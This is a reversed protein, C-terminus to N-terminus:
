LGPRRRLVVAMVGDGGRVRAADEEWLLRTGGDGDAVVVGCPEYADRLFAAMEDLVRADSDDRRLWSTPVRISVVYAPRAEAVERMMEEQMSRADPQPELLPYMYVHGTAGRRGALFPIQPESGFVAIRDGPDTREALWAAIEPSEPFLDDGYLARSVQAPAMRFYIERQSALSQAGVALATAAVVALATRASTRRRLFDDAASLAAGVFMAVAPVALLFYHQRFTLGPATGLASFAAFALLRGRHPVVGRPAAALLGGVAALAWLVPAERVIRGLGLRLWVLGEGLPLPKAYGAGYRFLWGAYHAFDGRAAAWGLVLATPLAATALLLAADRWAGAGRRRVSSLARAVAFLLFVVGPQKMLIALGLLLGAAITWDRAAPEGSRLAREQALLGALAPLVVFHTAHGFPGLMATQVSLFAFASAAGMAGVWGLWARGLLFVLVTSALNVAVLLLRASAPQPGLLAFALAYAAHTGPLKMGYVSEFPPVGDLMLRGAYAYEGEDRELPVGLLRLRIAAAALAAVVAIAVAVAAAVVASRAGADAGTGAPGDRDTRPTM